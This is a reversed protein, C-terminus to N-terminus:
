FVTRRLSLGAFFFLNLNELGASITSSTHEVQNEQLFLGQQYVATIERVEVSEQLSVQGGTVDTVVFFVIMSFIDPIYMLLVIVFCM